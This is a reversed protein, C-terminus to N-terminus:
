LGSNKQKLALKVRESTTKDTPIGRLASTADAINYGLAMLADLAEDGAFNVMNESSDNSPVYTPSGVKERLSVVLKEATKKGVGSAGAIYAVDESAIGSRVADTEGLSLISLAAKPGIGQVTILLEFLRKGALNSFGFLEESQERIHHHTYLKIPEGPMAKDYEASAVQVEYGVGGVNVVVSSAFKEVVKGELFAIM